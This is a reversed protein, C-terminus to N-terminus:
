ICLGIIEDSIFGDMNVDIAKHNDIYVNYNHLPYSMEDLTIKAIKKLNISYKKGVILPSCEGNMITTKASCLVGQKRNIKFYIIFNKTLTNSDIGTIKVCVKKYTNVQTFGVIPMCLLLLILIKITNSLTTFYIKYKM